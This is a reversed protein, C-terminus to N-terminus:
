SKSIGHCGKLMQQQTNWNTKVRFLRKILKATLFLVGRSREITSKVREYRIKFCYHVLSDKFGIKKQLKLNYFVIYAKGTVVAAEILGRQIKNEEHKNLFANHIDGVICICYELPHSMRPIVTGDWKDQSKWLQLSSYM